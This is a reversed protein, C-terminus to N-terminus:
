FEIDRSFTLGFYQADIRKNGDHIISFNIRTKGNVAGVDTFELALQKM